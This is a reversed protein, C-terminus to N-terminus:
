RWWCSLRVGVVEATMLELAESVVDELAWKDNNARLIQSIIHFHISGM